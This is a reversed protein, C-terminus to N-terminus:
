NTTTDSNSNTSNILSQMLDDYARKLEKDEWKVNNKERIKMLATYTLTPDNSLNKETLTEKINAKVSDLSPRDKQGTKLIIHYGYQTKVPESSYKGKKLEKTAKAFNEDMDNYNFFGLNGGDNKNSDDDSYKKALDKFKEGKDLLTIVKKAKALAKKEAKAKEEDSASDKVNVKILIHSAKMQGTINDEYYNKIDDDTISDKVYDKVALNRKYQLRFITELDKESDAGFYQKIASLFAKENDSYNSKIQKIQEEVYKNENDDTPYKNKFLKQDIMDVLKSVNERKIENYYNDASIKSTRISVAAEEGNKLKAKSCGTVMISLFLIVMTIKIFKKKM